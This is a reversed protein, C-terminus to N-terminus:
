QFQQQEETDILMMSPRRTAPQQQQQQLGVPQQVGVGWAGASSGAGLQQQQQQQQARLAQQQQLMQQQRLQLIGQELHSPAQFSWNPDLAAGLDQDEEHGAPAAPDPAAAHPRQLLQMMMLANSGSSGGMLSSRSGMLGNSGSSGGAAPIFGAAALPAIVPQGGSLEENWGPPEVSM